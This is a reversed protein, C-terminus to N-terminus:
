DHCACRVHTTKRQEIVRALPVPRKLHAANEAGAPARAACSSGPIQLTTAVTLTGADYSAADIHARTGQPQSGANLVLAMEKRFDVPSAAGKGALAQWDKATRVATLGVAAAGPVDLPQVAIPGFLDDSEADEAMPGGCAAVMALVLLGRM